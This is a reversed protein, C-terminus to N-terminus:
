RAGDRESMWLKDVGPAMEHIRGRVESRFHHIVANVTWV